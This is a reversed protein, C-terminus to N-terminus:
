LVIWFISVIIESRKRIAGLRVVSLAAMMRVAHATRRAAVTPAARVTTCVIAVADGGQGVAAHVMKAIEVETGGASSVNDHLGCHREARYFLTEARSPLTDQTRSM